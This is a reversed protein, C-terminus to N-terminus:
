VMKVLFFSSFPFLQFCSFAFFYVCSGVYNGLNLNVTFLFGFLYVSDVVPDLVAVHWVHM